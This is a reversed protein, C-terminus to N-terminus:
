AVPRKAIEIAPVKTGRTYRVLVFVPGQAFGDPTITDQRVDLLARRLAAIRRNAAAGALWTESWRGFTQHPARLLDPHLAAPAPALALPGASWSLATPHPAPMDPLIIPVLLIANM